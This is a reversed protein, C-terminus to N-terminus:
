PKQTPRDLQTLLGRVRTANPSSPDKELYTKWAAAAKDVEGKQAYLKGLYLHALAQERADANTGRVLYLEAEAIQDTELLAIGLYVKAALWQPRLQLVKRLPEIAEAYRELYNLTAGLNLLPHAAKPDTELARRLLSEAEGYKKEAMLLVALENYANVYAPDIGIARRLKELAEASARKEIARLAEEYAKRAAKPPQHALQTASVIPPGPPRKPPQLPRLHIPVYGQSQALFSETTSAYTEGDTELTIKYWRNAALGQLHFRGQSDTFYIEVDRRSDESGLLFRTVAGIPQGNPLFIQGRVRVGQARLPEAAFLLCCVFVAAWVRLPFQRM